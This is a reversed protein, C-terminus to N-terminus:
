IKSLLNLSIREKSGLRYVSQLFIRYLFAQVHRQQTNIFTIVIVARFATTKYRAHTSKAKHAYFYLVGLYLMM